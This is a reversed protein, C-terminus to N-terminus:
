ERSISGFLARKSQAEQRQLAALEKMWIRFNDVADEPSSRHVLLYQQVQAPSLKGDPVMRSFNEALTPIADLDYPCKAANVPHYLFQFIEQAMVKSCYDFHIKQQIRGARTLAEDLVEPHNSTMILVHGLSSSIGDIANLLGSITM